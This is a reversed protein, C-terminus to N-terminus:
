QVDPPGGNTLQRMQMVFGILEPTPTLEPAGEDPQSTELDTYGRPQIDGAFGM